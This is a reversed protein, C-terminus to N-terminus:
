MSRFVHLAQKDDRSARKTNDVIRGQAQSLKPAPPSIAALKMRAAASAGIITKKIPM